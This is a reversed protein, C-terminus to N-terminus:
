RLMFRVPQTMQVPVARGQQIGPTFTVSRLAKLAANDLGSYGSSRVVEPNTVNGNVDVVFQLVVTGEIQARREIAPYELNQYLAAQGGIMEPMVEVAYFPEDYDDEVPEAPPPAPLRETDFIDYFIVEDDLTHDDPVIAPPRPPQPAPPTEVVTIIIVDDIVIEDRELQTTELETVSGFDLKFFIVALVISLAISGKLTIRYDNRLDKNPKIAKM